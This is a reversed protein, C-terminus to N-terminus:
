FPGSFALVSRNMSPCTNMSLNSTNVSCFSSLSAQVCKGGSCQKPSLPIIPKSCSFIYPSLLRMTELSTKLHNSCLSCMKTALMNKPTDSRGPMQNLTLLPQWLLWHPTQLRIGSNDWHRDQLRQVIAASMERHMQLATAIWLCM